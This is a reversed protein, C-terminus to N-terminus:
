CRKAIQKLAKAAARRVTWSDEAAIKELAPVASADGHKGLTHAATRRVSKSGDDLARLLPPIVPGGGITGLTEIATERVLSDSHDLLRAVFAVGGPDKVVRFFDLAYFVAQKNEGADDLAEGVATVAASGFTVLAGKTQGMCTVSTSKVMGDALARIAAEDGVATLATVLVPLEHQQDFEDTGRVLRLLAFRLGRVSKPSAWAALLAEAAIRVGTKTDSLALSLLPVAHEPGLAALGMVASKREHVDHDRLASKFSSHSAAALDRLAAAVASQVAANEDPSVADLLPKVSTPGLDVLAAVAGERVEDHRLAKILGNADRAAKLAAIDPQGFLSM